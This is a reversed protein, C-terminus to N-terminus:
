FREAFTRIKKWTEDAVHPDTLVVWHAGQRSGIETIKDWDFEYLDFSLESTRIVGIVLTETAEVSVNFQVDAGKRAGLVIHFQYLASKIVASLDVPGEKDPFAPAGGCIQIMGAVLNVVGNAMSGLLWGTKKPVDDNTGFALWTENVKLLKALMILTKHRPRSEGAFWKRITEQTIEHQFREEFQHVFWGLQGYNKPPIIPNGDAAQQM